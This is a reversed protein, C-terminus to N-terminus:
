DKKEKQHHGSRHESSSTGCGIGATDGTFICVGGAAILAGGAVAQYDAGTRIGTLHAGGARSFSSVGGWEQGVADTIHGTLRLAFNATGVALGAYCTSGAM